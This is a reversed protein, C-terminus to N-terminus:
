FLHWTGLDTIVNKDKLYKIMEAVRQGEDFENRGWISFVSPYDPFVTDEPPIVEKNMFRYFRGDNDAWDVGQM